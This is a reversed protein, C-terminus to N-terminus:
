LYRAIVAGGPQLLLGCPKRDAVLGTGQEWDELSRECGWVRVRKEGVM